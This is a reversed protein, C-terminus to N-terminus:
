PDHKGFNKAVITIDRGDIRGRNFIDCNPNYRPDGLKSGFCKAVVTIDRGDCKGDPVFPTPGTLDGVMSVYFSGGTLNNNATDTEETELSDSMTYKGKAIGLTNWTSNLTVSTGNLLIVYQEQIVTDNISLTVNFGEVKNGRNSLTVSIPLAYGQFVVTKSATLNV